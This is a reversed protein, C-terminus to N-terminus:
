VFLQYSRIVPTSNIGNSDLKITIRLWAMEGSAILPVLPVDGNLDYPMTALDYESLMHQEAHNPVVTYHKLLYSVGSSYRGGKIELNVDIEYDSGPMLPETLFMKFLAKSKGSIDGVIQQLYYTVPLSVDGHMLVSREVDVIAKDGGIYENTDVRFSDILAVTYDVPLSQLLAYGASVVGDDEALGVLTKVDSLGDLVNYIAQLHNLIGVIAETVSNYGTPMLAHVTATLFDAVSINSLGLVNPLNTTESLGNLLLINDLRTIDDRSVDSWSDPRSMALGNVPMLALTTKVPVVAVLSKNVSSPISAPVFGTGTLKGWKVTINSGTYNSVYGVLREGANNFVSGHDEVYLLDVRVNDAYDSSILVPADLDYPAGYSGYLPDAWSTSDLELLDTPSLSIVTTTAGVIIGLDFPKYVLIKKHEIVAKISATVSDVPVFGSRLATLDFSEGTMENIADLLRVTIANIDVADNAVQNELNELRDALIAKAESVPMLVDMSSTTLEQLVRIVNVLEFKRKSLSSKLNFNKGM